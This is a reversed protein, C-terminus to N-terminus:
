LTLFYFLISMIKECSFNLITTPLFVISYMNYVESPPSLKPLNPKPVPPFVVNWEHTPNYIDGCADGIIFSCIEEPGISIRYLVYVVEAQM